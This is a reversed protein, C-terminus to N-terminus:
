SGISADEAKCTKLTEEMHQKAVSDDGSKKAELILEYNTNEAVCQCVALAEAKEGEPLVSAKSECMALSKEKLVEATLAEDAAASATFFLSALTLIILQKM